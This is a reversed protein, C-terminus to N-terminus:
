KQFLETALKKLAAAAKAQAPDAEALKASRQLALAMISADSGLSLTAARRYEDMALDPKKGMELWLARVLHLASARAPLMPKLAPQRGGEAPQEWTSLFAKTGVEDKAGIMAFAAFDKLEAAYAKSLAVPAAPLKALEKGIAELKGQARLSRLRYIAAMAGYGDRLPRLGSYADDLATWRQEAEAWRGAHLSGLAAQWDKPEEIKMASLSSLAVTLKAGEKQQFIIGQADAGLVTGSLQQGSAAVTLLARLPEANVSGSLAFLLALQRLTMLPLTLSYAMWILPMRSRVLIQSSESFLVEGPPHRKDM